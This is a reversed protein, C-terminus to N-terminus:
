KEKILVINEQHTCYVTGDKTIVTFTTEDETWSSIDVKITENGLDIIAKNYDWKTDVLKRNGFVSPFFMAAVIAAVVLLVIIVTVVKGFTKM